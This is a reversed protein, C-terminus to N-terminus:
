QVPAFLYDNFIVPRGDQNDVCQDAGMSRDLPLTLKAATEAGPPAHGDSRNSHACAAVGCPCARVSRTGAAQLRSLM